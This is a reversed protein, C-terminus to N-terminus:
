GGLNRILIAKNPGGNDRGPYIWCGMDPWSEKPAQFMARFRMWYRDDNEPWRKGTSALSPSAVVNVFPYSSSSLLNTSTIICTATSAAVHLNEVGVRARGLGWPVWDGVSPLVRLKPRM